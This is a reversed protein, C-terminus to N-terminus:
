QEMSTGAPINLIHRCYSLEMDNGASVSGSLARSLIRHFRTLPHKDLPQKRLTNEEFLDLYKLDIKNQFLGTSNTIILNSGKESICNLM